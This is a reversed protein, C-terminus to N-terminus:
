GLATNYDGVATRCKPRPSGNSGLIGPFSFSAETGSHQLQSPPLPSSYLIEAAESITGTGLLQLPPLLM